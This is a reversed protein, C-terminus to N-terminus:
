LILCGAVAIEYKPIAAKKRLFGLLPMYPVPQGNATFQELVWPFSFLGDYTVTIAHGGPRIPLRCSLIGVSFFGWARFSM